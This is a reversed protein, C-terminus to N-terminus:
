NFYPLDDMCWHYHACSEIALQLFEEQNAVVFKCYSYAKIFAIAQVLLKARYEIARSNLNLKKQAECAAAKNFKTAAMFLDADDSTIEGM